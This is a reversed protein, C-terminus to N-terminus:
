LLLVIRLLLGCECKLSVHSGKGLMNIEFHTYVEIPNDESIAESEKMILDRM